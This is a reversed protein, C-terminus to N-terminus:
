AERLQSDASYCFSEVHRKHIFYHEKKIEFLDYTVGNQNLENLIEPYLDNAPLVYPFKLAAKKSRHNERRIRMFITHIDTQSFVEDFFAEKAAKNYGKGFYPKGIWTGLFGTGDRIDFLSITGIPQGWEDLITRSIMRKQEELEIGQKTIFMYEDLTDAKQRVFPFVEPDKLLEFLAGCDAIERKKLM